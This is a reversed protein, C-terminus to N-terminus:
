STFHVVVTSTGSKCRDLVTASDQREKYIDIERGNLQWVCWGIRSKQARRKAKRPRM